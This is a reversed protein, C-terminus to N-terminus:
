DWGPLTQTHCQSQTCAHTHIHTRQEPLTVSHLSAPPLALSLSVSCLSPFPSVSWPQPIFLSFSPRYFSLPFSFIGLSFAASYHWIVHNSLFAYYLTLRLSLTLFPSLIWIFLLSIPLPLVYFCHAPFSLLFSSEGSGFSNYILLESVSRDPLPGAWLNLASCLYLRM